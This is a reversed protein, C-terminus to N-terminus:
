AKARGFRRLRPFAPPWDKEQAASFQLFDGAPLEEGDEAQRELVLPDEHGQSILSLREALEGLCGLVARHRELGQGGCALQAM